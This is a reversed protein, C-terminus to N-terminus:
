YFFNYRRELPPTLLQPNREFFSKFNYVQELFVGLEDFSYVSYFQVFM